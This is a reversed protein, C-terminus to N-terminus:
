WSKNGTHRACKYYMYGVVEGYEDYVEIWDPDYDLRCGFFHQGDYVKTVVPATKSEFERVNAYGYQKSNIKFEEWEDRDGGLFGGPGMDYYPYIFVPRANDEVENSTTVVVSDVKELSTTDVVDASDFDSSSSSVEPYVGNNRGSFIYIGLGVIIIALLCIIAYLGGKNNNKSSSKKAVYKSHQQSLTRTEIPSGCKPCAEARDSVMNGCEKCKILAM